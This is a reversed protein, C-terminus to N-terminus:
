VKGRVSNKIVANEPLKKILEAYSSAMVLMTQANGNVLYSVAFKNQQHKSRFKIINSM